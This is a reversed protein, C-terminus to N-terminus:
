QKIWGIFVINSYIKMLSIVVERSNDPSGDNIIIIEYTSPAIDQQQLSTICKEIYAEVNYVPIIISLQM